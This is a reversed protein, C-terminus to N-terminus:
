IYYGITTKTKIELVGQLKKRLPSILRKINEHKDPRSYIIISLDEYSAVRNKCKLIYALIKTEMKTLEIITNGSM